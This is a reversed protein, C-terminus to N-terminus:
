KLCLHDEIRKWLFLRVRDILIAVFFCACIFLATYVVFPLTDCQEFWQHIIRGYHPRLLLENGHLLYVAFCSMALTNVVRSQLSLKSFTLLLCLAAAIVLPQTYTFLRGTVPLGMRTLGFAALAMLLSLALYASLYHIAKAPKRTLRHIISDVRQLGYRRFYGALAYLGIFSFASYGGGLWAAGYLSVWGYLTQFAYFALLFALMGREGARDMWANLMPSVIMLGIYAKVFWYDSSNIMLITALSDPNNRHEPYLGAMVVFVLISFFFTQFLFARMKRLQLHIGFWGSLLVFVNVCVCSLSMMSFRTITSIPSSAADQGTPVGTALFCAHTVLVLLMAVIRLLEMNSQRKKATEVKEMSRNRSNTAM